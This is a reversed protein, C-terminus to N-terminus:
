GGARRTRGLQEHRFHNRINQAFYTGKSKAALFERFCEPPFESYRYREGSHFEVYLLRDAPSYAVSNLASSDVPLWDM